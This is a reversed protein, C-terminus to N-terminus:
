FEQKCTAGYVVSEAISNCYVEIVKGNVDYKIEIKVEITCKLYTTIM